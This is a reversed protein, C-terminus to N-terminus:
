QIYFYSANRDYDVSGHLVTTRFPIQLTPEDVTSAPQTYVQVSGRVRKIDNPILLPQVTLEAIKTLQHLGAPIQLKEYHVILHNINVTAM